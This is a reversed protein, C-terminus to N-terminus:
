PLAWPLNEKSRLLDRAVSGADPLPPVRALALVALTEFRDGSKPVDEVAIAAPAAQVAALREYRQANAVCLALNVAVVIAAAVGALLRPWRLPRPTTAPRTENAARLLRERLDDPPAPTPRAALQAELERLDPPLDPTM